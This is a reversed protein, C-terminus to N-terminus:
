KPPHPAPPTKAPVYNGSARLQVQGAHYVWLCGIATIFDAHIMGDVEILGAAQLLAYAQNWRRHPMGSTRRSWHRGNLARHVLVVADMYVRQDPDAPPPPPLKTATIRYGLLRM